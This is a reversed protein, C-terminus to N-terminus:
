DLIYRCIDFAFIIEDLMYKTHAATVCLRLRDAGPPVAPFIVPNALVGLEYLKASLDLTKETDGIIIPIIPSKTVGTDYGLRNLHRRLYATNEFVKKIREPGERELIELAAFAAGANAPSMAGSFVFPTSAHQLFIVTQLSAAIFGGSAPIAKSLASTYIDVDDPSVGFHEDIGRGTTGMVGFSHSEDIVLYAGYKKKLAVIEPLPCIDGEMSYVGEIIIFTKKAETPKSLLLDLHATDNHKFKDFSVQVMSLADMLSRHIHEDVIVRDTKQILCNVIAINAMYGSSYTIAAEKGKFATLKAELQRHLQNTGALMRAGGTATGYKKIANISGNEIYSDGLLGLYDYSSLMFMERNNSFVEPGSKGMLTQQFPYTEANVMQHIRQNWRSAIRCKIMPELEPASDKQAFQEKFPSVPTSNEAKAVSNGRVPVNEEHLTQQKISM